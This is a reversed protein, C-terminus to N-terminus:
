SCTVLYDDLSDMKDLKNERFIKKLYKIDADRVNRSLFVAFLPSSQYITVVVVQSTKLTHLGLCTKVKKLTQLTKIRTTTLYPTQM